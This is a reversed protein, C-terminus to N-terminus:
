SLYWVEKTEKWYGMFHKHYTESKWRKISELVQNHLKGVCDMHVKAREQAERIVGTVANKMTAYLPGNDAQKKWKEEWATLKRAYKAEIEARENVMRVMEDCIIAGDDIRKVAKKYNGLFFIM